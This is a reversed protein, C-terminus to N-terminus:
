FHGTMLFDSGVRDWKYRKLQFSAPTKVGKLAQSWYLGKGASVRPSVYLYFRQAQLQHIFRSVSVGGGEVLVSSM